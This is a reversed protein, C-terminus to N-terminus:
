YDNERLSLFPSAIIWIWIIITWLPTALITKNCQVSQPVSYLSHPLFLLLNIFHMSTITNIHLLSKLWTIWISDSPSNPNLVLPIVNQHIRKLRTKAQTHTDPYRRQQERFCILALPQLSAKINLEAATKDSAIIVALTFLRRQSTELFAFLYFM